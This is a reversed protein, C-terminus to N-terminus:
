FAQTGNIRRLAAPPNGLMEIGARIRMVLGSFRWAQQDSDLRVALAGDPAEDITFKLSDPLCSPSVPVLHELGLPKM